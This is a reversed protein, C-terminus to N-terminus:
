AFPTLNKLFQEASRRWSFTLAHARATRPSITLAKRIASDLDEDLVGAGSVDMVDLPGPVPYAAVPVGSAMAELLVLGFTDTRSPFVFVDAASYILALDEGTKEGLFHAEPYRRNLESAQSGGAGDVRVASAVFLSGFEEGSSSHARM